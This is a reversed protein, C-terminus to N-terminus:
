RDRAKISVNAAANLYSETGVHTRTLERRKNVIEGIETATATQHRALGALVRSIRTHDITEGSSPHLLLGAALLEDLQEESTDDRGLLADATDLWSSWVTM